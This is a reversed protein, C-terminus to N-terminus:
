EPKIKTKAFKLLDIYSLVLISALIFAGIVDTPNHVGLWIRSFGVFLTWGIAVFLTIARLAKNTTNKFVFYCIMAWLCCTVLSHSSVYSFSDPHVAIQLEFPPRARHITPKVICNLLFTVLPVSLICVAEAYSKNKLFYIAGVVLPIVIMASYLYFDPLLPIITPLNHLLNQVFVIFSRDWQTVVPCSNIIISYAVFLIILFIYKKM